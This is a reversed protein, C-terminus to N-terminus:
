SLVPFTILCFLIPLDDNTNKTLNSTIDFNCVKATYYHQICILVLDIVTSHHNALGLWAALGCRVGYSVGGDEWGVIM